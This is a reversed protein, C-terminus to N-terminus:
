HEDSIVSLMITMKDSKLIFVFNLTKYTPMLIIKINISEKINKPQFYDSSNTQNYREWGNQVNLYLSSTILLKSM